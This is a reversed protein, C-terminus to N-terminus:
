KLNDLFSLSGVEIFNLITFFLLLVVFLIPAIKNSRRFRMLHFYLLLGFSIVFWAVYNQVPIEGGQWQWLNLEMAVPEMVFDMLLMLWAGLFAKLLKMVPLKATMIGVTYILMLWNIGIMLPTNFLKIGLNPGYTYQGFPFGSNVGIVEIIFGALFTVAAFIIFRKKYKRHFWFLIIAYFALNFPTLAKFLEHTKEYTLGLIGVITVIVLAASGIWLKHKSRM